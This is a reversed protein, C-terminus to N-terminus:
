PSQKKNVGRRGGLDVRGAVSQGSVVRTRALDSYRPIRHAVAHAAVVPELVAGEALLVPGVDAFLIGRAVVADFPPRAIAVTVIKVEGGTRRAGERLLAPDFM